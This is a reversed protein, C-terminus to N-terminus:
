SSPDFRGLRNQLFNTLLSVRPGRSVGGSAFWTQVETYGGFIGDLAGEFELLRSHLLHRAGFDEASHGRDKVNGARKNDEGKM